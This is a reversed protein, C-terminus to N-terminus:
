PGQLAYSNGGAYDIAQPLPNRERHRGQLASEALLAMMPLAFNFLRHAFDELQKKM